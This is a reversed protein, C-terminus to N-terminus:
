AAIVLAQEQDAPAADDFPNYPPAAENPFADLFDGNGISLNDAVVPENHETPHWASPAPHRVLSATKGNAAQAAPERVNECNAPAADWAAAQQNQAEGAEEVNEVSNSLRSESERSAV